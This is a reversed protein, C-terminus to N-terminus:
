DLWRCDRQDVPIREYWWVFVAALVLGGGIVGGSVVLALNLM